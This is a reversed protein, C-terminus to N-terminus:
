AADLDLAARPPPLIVRDPEATGDITERLRM